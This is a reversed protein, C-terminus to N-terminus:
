VGTLAVFVLYAVLGTGLCLGMPFDDREWSEWGPTASRVFPLRKALRHLVFGGLIAAAFIYAFVPLDGLAVFPAMVAAFKADGAGLLGVANMVFGIVLVVALHAYRWLYDTLPLVSIAVLAIGVVAYVAFLAVVSKNPIKMRSMDSVAVWASIVTAFPLFALGFLADQVSSM